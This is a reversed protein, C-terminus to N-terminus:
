VTLRWNYLFFQGACALALYLVPEWRALSVARDNVKKLVRGMCEWIFFGWVTGFINMLLDDVDTTRRNLLQSCEIMLSLAAGTLLVKGINRYEKWILPLLFGLPVFLFINLVYTMRGQSGFLVTNVEDWRILEDYRGIDWVSGFGTISFMGFLMLLFLIVGIFHFRWAKGCLGRRLFLACLICPLLVCCVGYVFSLM